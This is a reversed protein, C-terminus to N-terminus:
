QSDFFLVACLYYYFGFNLKKKKKKLVKATLQSYSFIGGYYTSLSFPPMRASAGFTCRLPASLPPHTSSKTRCRLLVLM